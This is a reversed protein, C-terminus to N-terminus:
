FIISLIKDVSQGISEQTGGMLGLEKIMLDRNTQSMKDWGQMLETSWKRILQENVTIDSRTKDTQSRTLSNKLVAGIAEAKIQKIHDQVTADSIANENAVLKYDHLAKKTQYEIFNLRNGQSTQKEFNEINKMTAELEQLTHTQKLNQWEQFLKETEMATKETDVGTKKGTDARLNEAQAKLLDIQAAQTQLQMGMGAMTQIEGGGQPATGGTVNGSGSGTTTGGGGGMGYMLATNLGAKNLEDVQAKYNTEKWMQLQKSYNYDTMEKQGEIQLRQLKEQQRRQREDNLGGLLLGMGAGAAQGAFQLAIDAGKGM